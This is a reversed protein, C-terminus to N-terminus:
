SGPRGKGTRSAAPLRWTATSRRCRRLGSPVRLTPSSTNGGGVLARHGLMADGDPDAAFWTVEIGAVPHGDPDVVTGAVAALTPDAHATFIPNARRLVPLVLWAVALLAALAAFPTVKWRPAPM